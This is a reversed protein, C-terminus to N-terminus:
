HIILVRSPRHAEIDAVFARDDAIANGMDLVVFLLYLGDPYKTLDASLGESAKSPPTNKRIYKAEVVLDQGEIEHDPIATACAFRALPHESRLREFHTALVGNIKANLDPEDKPENKRFMRPLAELLIGQISDALRNVEPRLHERSALLAPLSGQVLDDFVDEAADRMRRLGRHVQDGHRALLQHVRETVEIDGRVGPTWDLVEAIDKLHHGEFEAADAKKLFAAQRLYDV